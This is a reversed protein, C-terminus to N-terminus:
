CEIRIGTLRVFFPVTHGLVLFNLVVPKCERNDSLPLAGFMTVTKLNLVFFKTQECFSFVSLVLLISLNEWAM